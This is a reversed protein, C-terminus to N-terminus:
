VGQPPFSRFAFAFFTFCPKQHSDTGWLLGTSLMLFPVYGDVLAAVTGARKQAARM